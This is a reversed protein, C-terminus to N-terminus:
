KFEDGYGSYAIKGNIIITLKGNNFKYMSGETPVNTFPKDITVDALQVIYASNISSKSVGDYGVYRWFPNTGTKVIELTSPTYKNSGGGQNYTASVRGTIKSVDMKTFEVKGETINIVGNKLIASTSKHPIAKEGVVDWIYSECGSLQTKEWDINSIRVIVVDIDVTASLPYNHENYVGNINFVGNYRNYNEDGKTVVGQHPAANGNPNITWSSTLFETNIEGDQYTATESTFHYTVILTEGKENQYLADYPTKDTNIFINAGDKRSGVIAAKPTMNVFTFVVGNKDVIKHAPGEGFINLYTEKPTNKKTGDSFEEYLTFYSRHQRQSIYQLGKDKAEWKTRTVANKKVDIDIEARQNYSDNNYTANLKLTANYRNYKVNGESVEGGDPNTFGGDTINFSSTMFDVIVEGDEYVATESVFPYVASLEPDYTQTYNVETTTVTVNANSGNRTTVTEKGTTVKGNQLNAHDRKVTQKAPSKGYVNLLEEINTNKKTGDSFEEYLTFSSKQRTNDYKELKKNIADWKTRTVASKKIDIDVEATRIESSGNWSDKYKVTYNTRNYETKDDAIVIGMDKDEQGNYNIIPIAPIDYNYKQGAFEAEVKSTYEVTVKGVFQNYIFKNVMTTTTVQDGNVPKIDTSTDADDVGTYKLVTGAPAYFHQYPHVTTKRIVNVVSTSDKEGSLHRKIWWTGTSTMAKADFISSFTVKEIYDTEPVTKDEVDIDVEPLLMTTMNNYSEKYKMIYNTRNYKKGDKGTILGIDKPELGAHVVSPIDTLFDVQEGKYITYATQYGEIVTSIFFGYDFPHKFEWTTIVHGTTADTKSNKSVQVLDLIDILSLAKDERPFNKKEEIKNYHEIEQTVISDQVGTESWTKQFNITSINKGNINEFKKIILEKLLKNSDDPKDNGKEVYFEQVQELNYPDGNYSGNFFLNHLYALYIKTQHEKEIAVGPLCRSFYYKHQSYPMAMIRVNNQKVWARESSATIKLSFGNLWTFTYTTTTKEFEFGQESPKTYPQSTTSSEAIQPNGILYSPVIMFPQQEQISQRVDYVTKYTKQKQGSVSWFEIVDKETVYTYLSTWYLREAVDIYGEYYDKGPDPNEPATVIVQDTIERKIQKGNPSVTSSDTTYVYDTFTVLKRLYPEKNIEIRELIKAEQRGPVISDEVYNALKIDGPNYTVRKRTSTYTRSLGEYNFTTVKKITQIKVDGNRTEEVIQDHTRNIDLLTFDAKSRSMEPLKKHEIKYPVAENIQVDKSVGNTTVRINNQSVADDTILTPTVTWDSHSVNSNILEVTTGPTTPTPKKGQALEETQECGSILVILCVVITTFFGRLFFRTKM